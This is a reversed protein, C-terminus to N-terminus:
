IAIGKGSISQPLLNRKIKRSSTKEYECDPLEIYDICKYSPMLANIARIDGAIREVNARMLEDPIYLGACLLDQDNHEVKYVVIDAAYDMHSEVVNEIEEPFINKGNSLVITNKKRGALHIKGDASISASDGTNFFGDSYFVKGTNEPDKYYGKAVNAGRVCLDGVGNSDPNLIRVEINDCPKGVSLHDHLTDANISILPGCETIGYGNEVRIGIDNLGKVVVPNLMSGGCVLMNLNGGFVEHIEAFMAHTRDIGFKRLFNSIRIGKRLKEEKGEKRANQWINRYFATAIMPVVTIITPKFIKLCRMLNRMECCIYTLRGSAVRTMIHTNIEVSHHMPLVSMSTNYKEARISGLCNDINASLNANSLVVAKNAGTTGSTFIIKAPADPDLERLHYPSSTFSGDGTSFSKGSEVLEEYCAYGEVKQDLTIIRRIRPCSPLIKEIVPLYLSGCLLADADCKDLLEAMLQPPMDRDMPVVVGVGSSICLDAIVYRCSNPAIIAIHANGLGAELLGNGLSMVENYLERATYHVINGKKDLEALIRNDPVLRAIRELVDRTNKYPGEKLLTDALMVKESFFKERMYNVNM